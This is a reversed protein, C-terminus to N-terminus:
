INHSKHVIWILVLIPINKVLPGFPHLWFSADIITLLLSYFFITLAQLLCCLKIMRDSIIWIGLIVGVLSGGYVFIEAVQGNINAKTLIDFGIEPSIFASIVATSVWLFSLSYVALKYISKDV